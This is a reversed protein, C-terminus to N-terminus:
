GGTVPPFFAVEDNDALPSQDNAMEQNVAARLRGVEAIAKAFTPNQESLHQKLGAVTAPALEGEVVISDCAMWEKLSAFFRVNLKM